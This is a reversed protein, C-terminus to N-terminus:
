KRNERNTRIMKSSIIISKIEGGREEIPNVNVEQCTLKIEKISNNEFKNNEAKFV